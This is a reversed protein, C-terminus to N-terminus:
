QVKVFLFAPFLTMARYAMLFSAYFRREVLGSAHKRAITGFTPADFPTKAENLWLDPESMSM